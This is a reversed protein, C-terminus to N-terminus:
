CRRLNSPDARGPFVPRVPLLPSISDNIRRDRRDQCRIDAPVVDAIVIFATNPHGQIRPVSIVFPIDRSFPLFIPIEVDSIFGSGPSRPPCECCDPEQDRGYGHDQACEQEVEGAGRVGDTYPMELGDEHGGKTPWLASRPEVSIGCREHPHGWQIELLDGARREDHVASRISGHRRFRVARERGCGAKLQVPHPTRMHGEETFLSVCGLRVGKFPQLALDPVPKARLRLGRCARGLPHSGPRAYATDKSFSM